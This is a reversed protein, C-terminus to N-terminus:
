GRDPMGSRQTMAAPAPSRSSSSARTRFAKNTLNAGIDLREFMMSASQKRM